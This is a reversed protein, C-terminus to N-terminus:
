QSSIADLPGRSAEDVFQGRNPQIPLVHRTGHAKMVKMVKMDKMAKMVNMAEMVKVAKMANMVCPFTM